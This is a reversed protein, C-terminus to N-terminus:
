PEFIKSPINRYKYPSGYWITNRALPRNEQPEINELQVHNDFYLNGVLVEELIFHPLKHSFIDEKTSGTKENDEISFTPIMDKSLSGIIMIKATKVKTEINLLPLTGSGIL